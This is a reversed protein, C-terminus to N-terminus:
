RAHADFVARSVATLGNSTCSHFDVTTWTYQISGGTPMTISSLEGYNDYDFTWYTGDALAVSVLPVYHVTPTAAEGVNV